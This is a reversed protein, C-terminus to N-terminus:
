KVGHLTADQATKSKIDRDIRQRAHALNAAKCVLQDDEDHISCTGDTYKRIWYGRYVTDASM